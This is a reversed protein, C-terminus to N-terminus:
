RQALGSPLLVYSTDPPERIVVPCPCRGNGLRHRAIGMETEAMWKTTMRLGPEPVAIGKTPM